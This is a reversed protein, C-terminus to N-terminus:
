VPECRERLGEHEQPATFQGLTGPTSDSTSEGGQLDARRQGDRSCFRTILCM